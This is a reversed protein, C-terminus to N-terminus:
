RVRGRQALNVIALLIAAGVLAGFVASWDPPWASITGGGFVFGLLGNGIFSGVIGVLVNALVGMAADRRMMVSALWGIVGGMVIFWVFGLM